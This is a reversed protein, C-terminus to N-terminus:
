TTGGKVAATRAAYRTSSLCFRDITNAIAAPRSAPTLAADAEVDWAEGDPSSPDAIQRRVRAL